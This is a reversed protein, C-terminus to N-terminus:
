RLPEPGHVRGITRWQSVGTVVLRVLWVIGLGSLLTGLVLTPLYYRPWALLLGAITGLFFTVVTVALLAELGLPEGVRWACWCGWILVALGVVSFGVEFPLGHSGSLTGEDLSFELVKEARVVPNYVATNALGWEPNFGAVETQEEAMERARSVFLVATNRLPNTYLYPNSIVFVLTAVAVAAVWARGM